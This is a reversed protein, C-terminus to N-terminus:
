EEKVLKTHVRMRNRFEDAWEWHPGDGPGMVEYLCKKGGISEEIRDGRRPQAPVGDLFFDQPRFLYDRSAWTTIAGEERVIDYNQIEVTANLACNSAGRRYVIPSSCSKHHEKAIWADKDKLMNGM